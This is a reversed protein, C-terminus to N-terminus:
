GRREQIAQEIAQQRIANLKECQGPSRIAKVQVALFVVHFSIRISNFFVSRFCSCRPFAMAALLLDGNFLCELLNSNATKASM